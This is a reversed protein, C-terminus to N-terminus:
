LPIPLVLGHHELQWPRFEHTIPTHFLLWVYLGLSGALLLRSLWIWGIRAPGRATARHYAWGLAVRAPFTCVISVCTLDWWIGLRLPVHMRLQLSYFFLPISLAYIAVTAFLWALPAHRFLERICRVDFIASCRNEAALRVQLFPVWALVPVFCAGTVLTLMRIWTSGSYWGAGFLATPLALWIWTGFFGRVGLWFHHRPRLAALFDRLVCDARSWYDGSRFQGRLWRVNKTPRVFCGLSGGRSLALLVHTGSFISVVLLVAILLWTATGSPAILRADMAVDALLKVPVLSVLIGIVISGIRMAAPLLPLAHRLKGSRAVHGEVELLYGFAVFNLVPVAAAITLLALLTITGILLQVIWAMAGFPRRLLPPCRKVWVFDGASGITESVARSDLPPGIVDVTNADKVVSQEAASQEITQSTM